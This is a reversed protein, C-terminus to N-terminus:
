AAVLIGTLAAGAVMGKQQPQEQRVFAPTQGQRSLAVIGLRITLLLPPAIAAKVIQGGGHNPFDRHGVVDLERHDIIAGEIGLLHVTGSALTSKALNKRQIRIPMEGPTRLQLGLFQATLLNNVPRPSPLSVLKGQQLKLDLIFVVDEKTTAMAVIQPETLSLPTIGRSCATRCDGFQAVTQDHR